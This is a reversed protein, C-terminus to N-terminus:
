SKISRTLDLSIKFVIFIMLFLFRQQTVGSATGMHFFFLNFLKEPFPM